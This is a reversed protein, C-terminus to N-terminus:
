KLEIELEIVEKWSIFSKHNLFEFQYPKRYPVGLLECGAQHLHSLFIKFTLRKAHMHAHAKQLGKELAKKKYFDFVKRYYKGQKIFSDSVIFALTKLKPNWFSKYGNYRRSQGIQCSVIKAHCEEKNEFDKYNCISIEKPSLMKHGEECQCKYVNPVLGAYSWWSTVNKKLDLPFSLLKMTAIEGVGNVHQLFEKWIPEDALMDQIFSKYEKENKKIKDIMETILINNQKLVKRKRNESAIRTKQLQIYIDAMIKYFEINESLYKPM